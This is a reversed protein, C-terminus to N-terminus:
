IGGGAHQQEMERARPLGCVSKRLRCFRRRGTWVDHQQGGPAANAARPAAAATLWAAVPTTRHRTRTRCAKAATNRGIAPHRQHPSPHSCQPLLSNSVPPNWGQVGVMGDQLVRGESGTLICGRSGRQSQTPGLVVDTTVAADTGGCMVRQDARPMVPVSYPPGTASRRLRAARRKWWRRSRRAGRPGKSEVGELTHAGGRRRRACGAGGERGQGQCVCPPATGSCRPRHLTRGPPRRSKRVYGCGAGSLMERQRQPTRATADGHRAAPRRGRRGLM